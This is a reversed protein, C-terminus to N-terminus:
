VIEGKTIAEEITEIRRTIEEMYRIRVDFGYRYEYKDVEFVTRDIIDTTDVVVANVRSIDYYGAHKFYHLANIASGQASITSDGYANISLIIYPEYKVAEIYDYKFRDDLSKDFYREHEGGENIQHRLNTIKYSLYPYAPRNHPNDTEVVTLGTYKNLGSVIVKTIESINNKIM